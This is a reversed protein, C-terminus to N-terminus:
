LDTKQHHANQTLKAIEAKLRRIEEDRDRIMRRLKKEICATCRTM